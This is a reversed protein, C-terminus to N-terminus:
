PCLSIEKFYTYNKLRGALTERLIWRMWRGQHGYRYVGRPRSRMM